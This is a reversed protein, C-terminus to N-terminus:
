EKVSGAVIGAIFYKQLFPYICLIPIVSVIIAASSVNQQSVKRLLEPDVQRGKSVLLSIDQAQTILSQMLTQLPWKAVDNMYLLADFWANWHGVISFLSLTAISPLSLPIFVKYLIAFHGAGDIMAAEYLAKPLSRFFNMMMIASFIPLAGPLILVWFNNLLHLDRLWLYVPILGGSFLLPFVLFWMFVNRGKLEETERSLPYATLTVLAMNVLTGLLVRCVSVGVSPLFSASQLFQRYPEATFGRPIFGVNHVTLLSADSLSLALVHLLPVVCSAALVALFAYNLCAFVKYSWTLRLPM